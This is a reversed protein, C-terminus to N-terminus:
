LASDAVKGATAITALKTDAIAASANIDMNVIAGDTIESSEITSGIMSVNSSLASDAVKGATAITALKTDAIAASANIDVNVIAGDTIESSEITSGIMSVNSSLASDAVKGATAITALKTDDIAASANIDANVIAGDTIMASTISSAQGENVYTSDFNDGYYGNVDLIVDATANGSKVNMAGTVSLPVVAANAVTAGAGPYNLTSVNPETGDSPWVKIHGFAGSGTNTATVNLSVAQIGAPLGCAGPLTYTRIQDAAYVGDGDLPNNAPPRTDLLRCPAIAVFPLPASPLVEVAQPSLGEDTVSRIARPPSWFPPATWNPIQELSPSEQGSVLGAGVFVSASLCALRIVRRMLVEQELRHSAWGSPGHRHIRPKEQRLSSATM